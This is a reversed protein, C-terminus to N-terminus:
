LALAGRYLMDKLEFKAKVRIPRVNMEFTVNRDNAALPPDQKRFAFIVSQTEHNQVLFDAAVPPRGHATLTTGALLRDVSEKQRAAPDRATEGGSSLASRLTQLPMGGVSLAYHDRFSSPLEVKTAEIIPRASEWCIVAEPGQTGGQTGAGAPGDLGTSAQGGRTGGGTGAIGNRDAGSMGGFSGRSGQADMTAAAGAIELRLKKSWPSKSRLRDVEEASWQSSPKTNWFDSASFAQERSVTLWISGTAIKLLLTRRRVDSHRNEV